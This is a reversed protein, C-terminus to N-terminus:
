NKLCDYFQQLRPYRLVTALEHLMENSLLLRHDSELVKMLLERALGRARDNARVLITMDLIIKM